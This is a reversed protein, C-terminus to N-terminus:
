LCACCINMTHKDHIFVPSKGDICILVLVTSSHTHTFRDKWSAWQTNKTGDTQANRIEEVMSHYLSLDEQECLRAAACPMWSVDSFSVLVMCCRCDGSEGSEFPGFLLLLSLSPNYKRGGGALPLPIGWSIQQYIRCNASVGASYLDCVLCCSPSLWCMMAPWSEKTAEQAHFSLNWHLVKLPWLVVGLAIPHQACLLKAVLAGPLGVHVRMAPDVFTSAPNRDQDVSCWAVTSKLRSHNFMKILGGGFQHLHPFWNGMWCMDLKM